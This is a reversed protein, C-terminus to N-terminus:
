QAAAGSRQEAWRRFHACERVIEQFYATDELSEVVPFWTKPIPLTDGRGDGGDRDDAALLAGLEAKAAFFAAKARVERDTSLDYARKFWREAARPAQLRQHTNALVVRANGYWTLNYMANGVLLAANGAAAGKGRATQALEALRAALSAHTWPAEAYTVHDCDHCDLVRLAFPETGLKTSPAAGSRYAKAAEAFSGRALQLAALEGELEAVSYSGARLFQDFATANRRARALLARVFREDQWKGTLAATAELLGPLLFEGEVLNGASAYSAALAGRVERRVRSLRPYGDDLDRMVKAIEESRTTSPARLQADLVLAMALSARAQRRVRLDTPRAAVAADLRTRATALDGRKAALHGAILQMLWPRDAGPAGAIRLALLELEPLEFLKRQGAPQLALAPEQAAAEARELERVALVALLPSSPQLQFIERMAVFGDRTVGVLRWLAAQEAASSALHLSERWDTEERPSFDNAAAGALPPYGAHVRALELNARARQGEALLAGALYYRARWALDVSPGALTRAQRDHTDRLESWSRAYFLLRLLQFGYRQALFPEKAARLGAKAEALLPALVSRTPTLETTAVGEVQRALKVLALAARLKPRARADRWLSSQAYAPALTVRRGDLKAAIARLEALSADLLVARWDEVTVAAGLYGQWDALMAEIACPACEGDVGRRTPDYALYPTSPDDAVLPDFTTLDDLLPGDWGCADAPEGRLTLAATLLAIAGLVLRAGRRLRISSPSSPPKPASLADDSADDSAGDSADDCSPSSSSSPAIAM